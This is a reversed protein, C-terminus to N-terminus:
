MKNKDNIDLEKFKDDLHNFEKKVPFKNNNIKKKKNVFSTIKNDKKKKSILYFTNSIDTIINISNDYNLSIDSLNEQFTKTMDTTYLHSIAEYIYNDFASILSKNDSNNEFLKETLNLLRKKYFERDDNKKKINDESYLKNLLNPNVLYQLTVKNVDM